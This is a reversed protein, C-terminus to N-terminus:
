SGQSQQKDTYLRYPTNTNIYLMYQNDTGMELKHRLHAFNLVKKRVYCAINYICIDKVEANYAPQTVM